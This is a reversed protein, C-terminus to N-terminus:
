PLICKRGHEFLKQFINFVRHNEETFDSRPMYKIGKFVTLEHIFRDAGNEAWVPILRGKKEEYIITDMLALENLYKILRDGKFHETVGVLLYRCREFVIKLTAFHDQVEPAFEEYVIVNLDTIKVKSLLDKHFQKVLTEDEKSHLILADHIEAFFQLPFLIM